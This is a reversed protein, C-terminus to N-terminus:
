GSMYLKRLLLAYKGLALTAAFSLILLGLDAILGAVPFMFFTPSDSPIIAVFPSGPGGLRTEAVYYIGLLVAGAQFLDLLNKLRLHLLSLPIGCGM